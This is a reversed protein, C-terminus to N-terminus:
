PSLGRRESRWRDSRSAHKALLSDRGGTIAIVPVNMRQLSGLLGFLDQSEGSKSLVIAVDDRGVMGLDGHLSDVPHLYSAPTGTSTLTAAIKRAILGSKGMGSVIVRGQGPGPYGRGPSNRASGSPPRSSSPPRSASCGAARWCRRTKLRCRRGPDHPYRSVSETWSGAGQAGSRDSRAGGRIRRGDPHRVGGPGESGGRMPGAIPLGCRRLIPVDAIDDGVFALQDWGLGRKALLAEVAPLKAASNVEIVDPVKLEKGRLRTAESERGSVWALAIDSDRLMAMGLGDQIDFRKFEVREGKVSGIYVANDTLVGDVDLGLLKIRRAVIPDIM